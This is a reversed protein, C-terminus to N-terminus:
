LCAKSMKKSGELPAVDNVLIKHGKLIGKIIVQKGFGNDLKWQATRHPVVKYLKRAGTFVVWPSNGLEGLSCASLRGEMLCKENVLQGSILVENGAAEANQAAMLISLLFLVVIINIFKMIRKEMIYVEVPKNFTKSIQKVQRKKFQEGIKTEITVEM